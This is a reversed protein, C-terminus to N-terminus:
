PTARLDDPSPAMDGRLADALALVARRVDVPLARGNSLENAAAHLVHAVQGDRHCSACNQFLIPAIDKNFTVSPAPKGGVRQAVFLGVLLISTTLCFIYSRKM